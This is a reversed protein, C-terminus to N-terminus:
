DTLNFTITSIIPDKPGFCVAKFTHKGNSLRQMYLEDIKFVYKWTMPNDDNDRSMLLLDKDCYTPTVLVDDIYVGDNYVIGNGFMGAEVTLPCKSKSINGGNRTYSTQKDYYKSISFAGLPYIKTIISASSPVALILMFSLCLTMIKTFFKKM